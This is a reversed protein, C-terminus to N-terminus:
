SLVHQVRGIQKSDSDAMEDKWGLHRARHEWMTTQRKEAVLATEARERADECTEMGSNCKEAEKQYQSALKKAELFAVDARQQNEAAVAEQLKLEETLLDVYSKDMEDHAVADNKRCDSFTNNGLGTPIAVLSESPCDCFCPECTTSHRLSALDEAIHWYLPPGIIYTAMVMGLMLVVLKLAGNVKQSAM